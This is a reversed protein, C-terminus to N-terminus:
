LADQFEIPMQHDHRWRLAKACARDGPDVTAATQAAIELLVDALLLVGLLTAALPAVCVALAPLGAMRQIHLVYALGLVFVDPWADEARPSVL